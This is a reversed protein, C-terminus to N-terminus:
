AEESQRRKMIVVAGLMISLGIITFLITGIGGTQPISVKKNKVQQATKTTDSPEYAIDGVVGASYSKPTVTFPVTATLVAYGEPAKTEELEYNGLDLGVVEFRGKADSVFKYAASADGWTWDLVTDKYAADRQEKLVAIATDADNKSNYTKGSIIVTNTASIDGNALAKNLTAVSTYYAAQKSDYTAKDAAKTNKSKLVLYKGQNADGTRNNKVIFEAGQLREGDINTKVFKRGYATVKPPEPTIQPTKVNIIGVENSALSGFVKATGTWYTPLYSKNREEVVLYQKSNELGAVEAGTTFNTSDLTITKAIKGSTKEIISFKIPAQNAPWTNSVTGLTEEFRKKVKIKGDTPTVPTPTTNSTPNNSYKFDVDNPNPTEVEALSNLIGKYTFSIKVDGTKALNQLKTLGAPTLSTVFGNGTNVVTIETDSFKDTSGKVTYFNDFTNGQYTLGTSFTDHWTATELDSDKPITTDIRYTIEQGIYAKKDKTDKGNEVINKDITPKDETNKPYVHLPKNEDYYGSGDKLGAPLTLVFPVAKFDTIVSGDTAVYSSEKQNETVIYEGKPLTVTAVGNGDTTNATVTSKDELKKYNSSALKKIGLEAGTKTTGPIATVVKQWIDFKVGAIEKGSDGFRKTFEEQSLKEGTHKTLQTADFDTQNMVVKHILVKTKTPESVPEAKVSAIGAFFSFVTLVAMVVTFLKNIKKM